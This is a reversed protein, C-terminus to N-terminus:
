PLAPCLHPLFLCTDPHCGKALLPLWSVSQHVAEAVTDHDLLSPVRMETYGTGHCLVVAQPTPM